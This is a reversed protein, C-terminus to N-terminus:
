VITIALLLSGNILAVYTPATKKGRRDRLHVAVLGLVIAASDALFDGAAALVGLSHATVGVLVLGAVMGLNLLLVYSLRRQQSVPTSTVSGRKGLVAPRWKSARRNWSAATHAPLFILGYGRTTNSSNSCHPWNRGAPLAWANTSRREIIKRPTSPYASCM